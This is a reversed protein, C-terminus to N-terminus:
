EVKNQSKSTKIEKILLYFMYVLTILYISAILKEGLIWHHLYTEHHLHLYWNIRELNMGYAISFLIMPKWNWSLISYTALSLLVPHAYREHMQTNFFYFSLAILAMSLFVQKLPIYFDKKMRYKENYAKIFPLLSIIVAIVFMLLGWQKLTLFGFIAEDSLLLMGEVDVNPMLLFWINFAGLSPSPYFGVLSNLVDLVQNIKGSFLFPSIILVQLLIISVIAYLFRKYNELYQPLLLLGIVPIFVVAQLKFNLALLLSVVSLVPRKELALIIALFGWFSFIADVQGWLATNYIYAVNLMMLLFCYIKKNIDKIFWIAAFAGLIDFVFTYYKITYLNDQVDTPNGQIWTHFKLFYLYAPFYNVRGDDYISTFGKESILNSWDLWFTMDGQHGWKWMLIVYAFYFLLAILFLHVKTFQFNEKM